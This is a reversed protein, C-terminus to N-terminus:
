PKKHTSKTPAGQGQMNIACRILENAIFTPSRKDMLAAKVVVAENEPSLKIQM